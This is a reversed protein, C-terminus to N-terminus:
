AEGPGFREVLQDVLGKPAKPSPASRRYHDSIIGQLIDTPVAKVLADAAESPMRLRDIYKDTSSM